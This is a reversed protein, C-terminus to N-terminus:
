GRYLRWRVGDIYTDLRFPIKSSTPTCHPEDGNRLERRHQRVRPDDPRKRLRKSSKSCSKARATRSAAADKVCTSSTSPCKTQAQPPRAREKARSTSIGRIWKGLRKRASRPVFRSCTHAARELVNQGTVSKRKGSSRAQCRWAFVARTPWAEGDLPQATPLGTLGGQRQGRLGADVQAVKLPKHTVGLGQEIM